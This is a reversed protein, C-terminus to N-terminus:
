CAMGQAERSGLNEEVTVEEWLFEGDDDGQPDEADWWLYVGVMGAGPGQTHIGRGKPSHNPGLGMDLGSNCELTEVM